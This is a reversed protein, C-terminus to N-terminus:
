VCKLFGRPSRPSNQTRDFFTEVNLTSRMSNNYHKVELLATRAVEKMIDRVEGNHVLEAGGEVVGQGEGKGGKNM